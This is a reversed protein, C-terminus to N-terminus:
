WNNGLVHTIQMLSIESFVSSYIQTLFMVWTTIQSVHSELCTIRKLKNVTVLMWLMQLPVLFLWLSWSLISFLLFNFAWFIYFDLKYTFSDALFSFFSVPFFFHNICWSVTINVIDNRTSTDRILFYVNRESMTISLLILTIWSTTEASGGLSFSDTTFLFWRSLVWKEGSFISQSFTFANTVGVYYWVLQHITSYFLRNMLEVLFKKMTRFINIMCHVFVNSNLCFSFLIAYLRRAIPLYCLSFYNLILVDLYSFSSSLAGCFVFIILCWTKSDILFFSFSHARCIIFVLSM